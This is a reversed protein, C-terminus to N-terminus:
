VFTDKFQVPIRTGLEDRLVLVWNEFYGIIRARM